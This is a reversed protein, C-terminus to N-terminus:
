SVRHRYLFAVSSFLNFDTVTESKLTPFAPNPHWRRDTAHSGPLEFIERCRRGSGNGAATCKRGPDNVLHWASIRTGPDPFRPAAPDTPPFAHNQARHGFTLIIRLASLPHKWYSSIRQHSASSQLSGLGGTGALVFEPPDQRVQPVRVRFV